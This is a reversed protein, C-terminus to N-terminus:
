LFPWQSSHTDAEGGVQMKQGDWAPMGLLQMSCLGHTLLEEDGMKM